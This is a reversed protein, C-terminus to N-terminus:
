TRRNWLPLITEYLLKKLEVAGIHVAIDGIAEM